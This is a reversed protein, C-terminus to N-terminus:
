LIDSMLIGRQEARQSMWDQLDEALPLAEEEPRRELHLADAPCVVTCVGCGVCRALDVECVDEPVEL